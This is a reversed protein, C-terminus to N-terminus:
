DEVGGKRVIDIIEELDNSKRNCLDWNTYAVSDKWSKESWYEMDEECKEKQYELREVIDDMPKRTNWANVVIEEDWLCTFEVDCNNCGVIYMNVELGDADLPFAIRKNAKGGCFPCPKLKVESM